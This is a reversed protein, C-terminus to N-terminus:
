ARARGLLRNYAEGLVKGLGAKLKALQNQPAESPALTWFGRRRLIVHRYQLARALPLESFIFEESWGTESALTLM